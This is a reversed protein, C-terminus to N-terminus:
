VKPLLQYAVFTKVSILTLLTVHIFNITSHMFIYCPKFNPFAQFEIGSETIVKDLKIGIFFLTNSLKGLFNLVITSQINQYFSQVKFFPM